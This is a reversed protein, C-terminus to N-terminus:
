GRAEQSKGIGRRKRLDEPVHPADPFDELDHIDVVCAQHLGLLQPANQLCEAQPHLITIILLSHCSGIVTAPQQAKGERPLERRPKMKSVAM